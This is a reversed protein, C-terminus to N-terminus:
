TKLWEELGIDANKLNEKHKQYDTAEDRGLTEVSSEEVSCINRRGRSEHWQTQTLELFILKIKGSSFM